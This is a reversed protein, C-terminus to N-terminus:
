CFAPFSAVSISRSLSAWFGTSHYDQRLIQSAEPYLRTRVAVVAWHAVCSSTKDPTTPATRVIGHSCNLRKRDPWLRDDLSLMNLRLQVGDTSTLVWRIPASLRVVCRFTELYNIWHFLLKYIPRTMHCLLNHPRDRASITAKQSSSCSSLNTVIHCSRGQRKSTVAFVWEFLFVTTFALLSFQCCHLM